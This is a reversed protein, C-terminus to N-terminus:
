ASAKATEFTAVKDMDAEFFTHHNEDYWVVIPHKLTQCQPGGIEIYIAARITQEADDRSYDVGLLAEGVISLNHVYESDALLSIAEDVTLTIKQNNSM